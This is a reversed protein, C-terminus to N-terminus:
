FNAVTACVKCVVEMIGIEWYEGKKKPLFVMTSWALEESVVVDEFM